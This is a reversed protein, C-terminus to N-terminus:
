KNVQIKKSIKGNITQLQLFYIGNTFNSLDLNVRNEAPLTSMVIQGTSNFIDLKQISFPSEINLYASVPNPYVVVNYNSEMDSIGQNEEYQEWYFYNNNQTIWASTPVDWKDFTEKHKNKNADYTDVTRNQDVWAGSVWHSHTKLVRNGDGDYIYMDRYDNDWSFGLINWNSHNESILANNSNYTYEYRNSNVWQSLSINWNQDIKSLINTGDFTYIFKTNELWSGSSWIYSTKTLNNGNADYTFLNKNNNDWVSTTTNWRFNVQSLLNNQNDFVNEAKSSNVWKSTPVDYTQYISTTAMGSDNYVFLNRYSNQWVNSAWLQNQYVIQNGRNDYETINRTNNDWSTTSNNYFQLTNSIMKSDSNYTSTTKSNPLWNLGDFKSVEYTLRKYNQDYTSFAKNMKAWHIVDWMYIELTSVFENFIYEFTASDYYQILGGTLMEQMQATQRYKFAKSNNKQTEHPLLQLDNGAVINKQLPNLLYEETFVPTSEVQSYLYASSLLVIIFVYFKKM